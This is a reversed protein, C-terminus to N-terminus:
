LGDFNRNAHTDEIAKVFAIMDTFIHDIFDYETRLDEVKFVTTEKARKHLEFRADEVREVGVTEVIRDGDRRVKIRVSGGHRVPNAHAIQGRIDSAKKARNLLPLLQIWPEGQLGVAAADIIQIKRDIGRVSAFIADARARSGGLVAAFIDELYDEVHQFRLICHGVLAYFQQQEARFKEIEITEPSEDSTM